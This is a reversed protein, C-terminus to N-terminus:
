GWASLGALDWYFLFWSLVLASAFWTIMVGRGVLTWTPGNWHRVTQIAMLAFSLCAFNFLWVMAHAILPPEYGFALRENVTVAVIVGIAGFLFAMGGVFAKRVSRVGGDAAFVTRRALICYIGFIASLGFFSALVPLAFGQTAYFPVKDFGDGLSAGTVAGTADRAFTLTLGAAEPDSSRFAGEGIQRWKTGSGEVDLTQDDLRTVRAAGLGTIKLWGGYLRRMPAYYGEYDSIDDDFPRVGVLGAEEAKGFFHRIIDSPLEETVGGDDVSNVSLFIGFEEGPVLVLNSTFNFTGGNHQIVPNGAISSRQFGYANCGQVLPHARFHCRHMLAATEPLLIRGVETAGEGLHAKMFQAMDLATSAISGSPGHNIVDEPLLVQRGDEYGYGRALRRFNDADLPETASSSTMGLPRFVATELYDSYPVGAILEVVYGELSVGHNSYSSAQGPRRVTRVNPLTAKLMDGLPRIEAKTGVFGFFSEEFGATHTMLHHMSLPTRSHRPFSFDLYDGVDTHLSVRGREYLQMTATATFLKTVSGIMFLTERASVRRRRELDAHGYGKAFITRGNHVVSVTSGVLHNDAMARRMYADVYREVAAGTPARLPARGSNGWAITSGLMTVLMAAALMACKLWFLLLQDPAAQRAIAIAASAGIHHRTEGSNM